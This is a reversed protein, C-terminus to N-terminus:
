KGFYNILLLLTTISSLVTSFPFPNTGFIKARTPKVYLVDNPQLYFYDSSLLGRDTIDIDIIKEDNQRFLMIQKRNGFVTMDGALGLVELINVQNKAIRFTGPNNVEGLVTINFSFLKVIVLSNKLYLDAKDQIMKQCENITHDKVSVKGFLPLNVYGSDSVDYTDLYDSTGSNSSSYTNPNLSTSSPEDLPVTKIYLQDNAKVIYEQPKAKNKESSGGGNDQLYILKKQPTCSVFVLLVSFIFCFQKIKKTM